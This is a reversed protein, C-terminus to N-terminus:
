RVNRQSAHLQRAFEASAAFCGPSTARQRYNSTRPDFCEAGLRTVVGIVTGVDGRVETVEVNSETGGIWSRANRVAQQM